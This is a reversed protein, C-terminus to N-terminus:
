DIPVFSIDKSTFLPCISVIQDKWTELNYKVHNYGLADAVQQAYYESYPEMGTNSLGLYNTSGKYLLIENNIRRWTKPFM